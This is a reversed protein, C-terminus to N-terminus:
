SKKSNGLKKVKSQINRWWEMRVGEGNGKAIHYLRFLFWLYFLLALIIGINTISFHEM